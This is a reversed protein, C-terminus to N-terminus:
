ASSKQDELAILQLVILVLSCALQVLILALTIMCKKGPQFECTFVFILLFGVLSLLLIVM